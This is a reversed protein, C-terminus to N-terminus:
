KRESEAAQKAAADASLSVLLADWKAAPAKAVAYAHGVARALEARALGPDQPVRESTEVKPGAAFVRAVVLKDLLDVSGAGGLDGWASIVRALTYVSREWDSFSMTATARKSEFYAAWARTAATFAEASATDKLAVLARAAAVALVSTDRRAESAMAKRIVPVATADALSGLLRAAEARTYPSLKEDKLIKVAGEAVGAPKSATLAAAAARACGGGLRLSALGDDLTAAKGDFQAGPDGLYRKEEPTMKGVFSSRPWVDKYAPDFNRRPVLFEFLQKRVSEPLGHGEHDLETYMFDLGTERLHKAALRDPLVPIFDDASHYIFIPTKTDVLAKVNGDGSGAMPSITAFVDAMRPGLTWTGYGGMSHGTLHIRDIDVNYLLRLELIVDRVLEENIKNGWGAMQATPCAVIVGHEAALGRYFNMASPGSGVVEDGDKGDPGGGHLGILLPWTTTPDYGDPVFLTYVAGAYHDAHVSMPVDEQYGKPALSSRRIRGIEYPSVTSGKVLTALDGAATSAKAAKIRLLTVAGVDALSGGRALGEVHSKGGAEAAKEAPVLGEATALAIAMEAHAKLRHERAWTALATAEALDAYKRAALRRFFEPEARPELDLKKVQDIPLKVVEFTMEPNTSWYPNFVVETETKKVVLGHLKPGSKPVLLDAQASPHPGPLSVWLAAIALLASARSMPTLTAVVSSRRM